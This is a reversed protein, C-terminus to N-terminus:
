QPRVLLGALRERMARALASQQQPRTRVSISVTATDATLAEVGWVEPAGEVVDRWRPEECLAAVETRVREITDDLDGTIPLPVDVVARNWGLSANGVKRVEGNPVFWVNGDVARLRTVRLNVEEVTGTTDGLDVVDGVGYQDEILIFLGSIVDKVLSQAGFGIAVGAIGAGALVPALSVDLQDFVTLVAISWIVVRAASSLVDCITTARQEARPSSGLLPARLHLSRVSRSIWRAALRSLVSAAVLILVIKLPRWVLAEVTRAGFDNLGLKTLLDHFYDGNETAALVMAMM